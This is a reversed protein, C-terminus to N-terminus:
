RIYKIDFHGSDMSFVISIGTKETVDTNTKRSNYIMSLGILVICFCVGAGTIVNMTHSKGEEGRGFTAFMSMQMSLMSVLADSISINRLTIILLSDYKRAKILKVVAAVIKFFTYTAITIMTITGYSKVIDCLLNGDYYVM